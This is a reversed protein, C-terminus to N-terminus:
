WSGVEIVGCVVVLIECSAVAGRQLLASAFRRVSIQAAMLRWVPLAGVRSPENSTASNV